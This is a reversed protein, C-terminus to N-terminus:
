YFVKFGEPHFITKVWFYDSFLSIEIFKEDKEINLYKFLKDDILKKLSDINEKYNTKDFGYLPGSLSHSINIFFEQERFFCKFKMAEVDKLAIDSIEIKIKYLNNM